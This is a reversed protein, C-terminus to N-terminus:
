NPTEFIGAMYFMVITFISLIVFMAINIKRAKAPDSYGRVVSLFLGIILATQVVLFLLAKNTTMFDDSIWTLIKVNIMISIMVLMLLVFARSIIVNLKSPEFDSSM